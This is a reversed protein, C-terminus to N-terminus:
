PQTEVLEAIEFVHSKWGRQAAAEALASKKRKAEALSKTHGWFVESKGNALLAVIRWYHTFATSTPGITKVYGDPLTATLYRKKAM